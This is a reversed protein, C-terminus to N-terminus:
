IDLTLNQFASILPTTSEAPKSKQKGNAPQNSAQRAKRKKIIQHASNDGTIPDNRDRSFIGKVITDNLTQITMHYGLATISNVGSSQWPRKRANKNHLSKFAQYLLKDFIPKKSSAAMERHFTQNSIEIQHKRERGIKVNLHQILLHVLGNSYLMLERPAKFFVPNDINRVANHEIAEYRSIEKEIIRQYTRQNLSLRIWRPTKKKNNDPDIELDTNLETLFRLNNHDMGAIDIIESIEFKDESNGKIDITYQTYYLRNLSDAITKRNGGVPNVGRLKALDTIDLLFDNNLPLKLEIYSKVIYIVLSIIINITQQDGITCIGLDNHNQATMVIKTKGNITQTTQLFHRDNKSSIRMCPTLLIFTKYIYSERLAEDISTISNNELLGDSNISSVFQNKAEQRKPKERTSAISQDIVENLAQGIEQPAEQTIFKSLDILENFVFVRKITPKQHAKSIDVNVLRFVDLEHLENIRKSINAPSQGINHHDFKHSLDSVDTFIFSNNSNDALSKEFLHSIVAHLFRTNTNTLTLNESSIFNIYAHINSSHLWIAKNQTKFDFSKITDEASHTRISKM